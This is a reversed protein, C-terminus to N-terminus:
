TQCSMTFVQVNLQRSKAALIKLAQAQDVLYQRAKMVGATGLQIRVHM